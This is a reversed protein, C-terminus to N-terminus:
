MVFGQTRCLEVISLRDSVGTKQMM